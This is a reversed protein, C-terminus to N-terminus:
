PTLPPVPLPPRCAAQNHPAPHAMQPPATVAITIVWGEPGTVGLQALPVSTGAHYVNWLAQPAPPFAILPRHSHRLDFSTHAEIARVIARLTEGLTHGEAMVSHELGHATWLGPTEQFIVLRLREAEM